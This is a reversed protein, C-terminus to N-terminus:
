NGKKFKDFKPHEHKSRKSSPKSEMPVDGEVEEESKVEEGNGSESHDGHLLRDVIGQKKEHKEQAKPSNKQAM